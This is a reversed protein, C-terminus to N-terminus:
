RIIASTVNMPQGSLIESLEGADYYGSPRGNSDCLFFGLLRGDASRRTSTVTVAHLCRKFHRGQKGYLKDADVSIIVGRGSEVQAAIRECSCKEVFSDLGFANMLEQRDRYSTGGNHAYTSGTCCLRRQGGTGRASSAYRVFQEETMNIGAMRFVNVCSVIGCTGGFGAM